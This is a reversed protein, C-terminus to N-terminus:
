PAASLDQYLMPVFREPSGYVADYAATPKAATVEELTKGQAILPAVNDRVTSLMERWAHLAAIGEIDGNGPIFRSEENALVLVQDVADLFGQLTGGAIVPYRETGFVDGLQFVNANVFWVINNDTTHAAPVPQIIVTEGNLHLALPATDFTVTPLAAAPAPPGGRQGAALIARTEERAIIVAGRQGYAENGGTHDPHVHTNVLYRLPVQTLGDLVALEANASAMDLKSDVVLTGESGTLIVSNAGGGGTVLYLGVAIEQAAVPPPPPAAAAYLLPAHLASLTMLALLAKNKM